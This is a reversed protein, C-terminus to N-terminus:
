RVTFDARALAGVVRGAELCNRTADARTEIVAIVNETRAVELRVAESTDATGAVFRDQFLALSRENARILSAYDARQSVLLRQEAELRDLARMNDAHINQLAREVALVRQEAAEVRLRGGGGSLSGGELAIQGSRNSVGDSGSTIEGQGVLRPWLARRAEIEELEKLEVAIRGRLAEPSYDRRDLRDCTGDLQSLRMPLQADAQVGTQEQLQAQAEALDARARLTERSNEQRSIDVFLASGQAVVGAALREEERRALAALRNELEARALIIENAEIADVYSRLAALVDDNREAWFDLEALVRSIEAQERRNRTQAFDHILQTVSLGVGSSAAGLGVTAVPRLRPVWAARAAASEAEAARLEFLSPSRSITLANAREALDALATEASLAGQWDQQYANSLVYQSSFRGGQGDQATPDDPPRDAGSGVCGALLPLAAVVAWLGARMRRAPRVCCAFAARDDRMLTTM